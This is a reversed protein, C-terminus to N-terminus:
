RPGNKTLGMDLHSCHNAAVIFNTHPPINSRGEYNTDLFQEYLFRQLFDGARTGATRVFSPVHIEDDKREDDRRVEQKASASPQRSVVTLLERLDQVENFREPASITGGASEISTALEVFMLSDFGLDSLRTDISVESRPVIRPARWSDSCGRLTPM